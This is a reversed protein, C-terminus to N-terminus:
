PRRSVATLVTPLTSLFGNTSVVSASYPLMNAMLALAVNKKMWSAPLRICSPPLIMAITVERGAAGM